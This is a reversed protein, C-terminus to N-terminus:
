YMGLPGHAWITYVKAKIYDRYLYKPALTYVIQTWPGKPIGLSWTYFVPVRLSAEPPKFFSQIPKTIMSTWCGQSSFSLRQSNKPMFYSPYLLVFPDLNGVRSSPSFKSLRWRLGGVIESGVVEVGSVRFLIPEQYLRLWGLLM